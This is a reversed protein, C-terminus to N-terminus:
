FFNAFRENPISDFLSSVVFVWSFEKTTKIKIKFKVIINERILIIYWTYKIINISIVNYYQYLKKLILFFFVELFDSHKGTSSFKILVINGDRKTRM